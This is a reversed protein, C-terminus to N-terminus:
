EIISLRRVARARYESSKHDYGQSGNGFYQVWAYDTTAAHQTSTWYWADDFAQAGGAKFADAETQKPFDPTYPRTPEVASLNIGSRAWCYNGQTTPKLNRYIIELEDQSPIYWDNHDGIQLRLADKALESGAAAMALTNARGDFYSAADEVAKTSSNWEADFEGEAKPAVILAFAQSDIRIRGAYFGGAFPTGPVTPTTNQNDM